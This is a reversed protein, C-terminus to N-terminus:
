METRYYLARPGIIIKKLLTEIGKVLAIFFDIKLLM